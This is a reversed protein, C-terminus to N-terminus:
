GPPRVRADVESAVFERLDERQCDIGLARARALAERGSCRRELGLHVTLLAAARRGHRSHVFVPKAIRELEVLFEDARASRLRGPDTSVRGHELEFTHAWTAEVNPSLLEDPEGETNLDLIARFGEERALRGIGDVTTTRGLAIDRDYRVLGDASALTM